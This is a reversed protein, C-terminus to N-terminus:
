NMKENVLVEDSAELGWKSIVQVGGRCYRFVIPDKVETITINLFSFKNNKKLGKLNFHSRPAAIFLGQRNINIHGVRKVLFTIGTDYKLNLIRDAEWKSVVGDLTKPLIRQWKSGMSLFDMGGALWKELFLKTKEIDKPYDEDKLISVDEIESINKEPVEKKYNAVPAYVLHYKVCIRNLEDETLFKQFPYTQKYYEILEAQERNKVLANINQRHRVVTKSNVFGIQELREAKDSLLAGSNNIIEQAEALLREQATDFEKHIEAVLKNQNKFM